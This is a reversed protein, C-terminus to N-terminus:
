ALQTMRVTDQTNGLVGVFTAITTIVGNTLGLYVPTALYLGGDYITNLSVVTGSGTVLSANCPRPTFGTLSIQPNTFAPVNTNWGGISTLQATAGYGVGAGNLTASTLTQLFVPVATATAGAGSITLSMTSAVPAGNNTLLVATISGAGTLSVTAAAATIATGAILNPDAPNPVININPAVQYGAGQNVVVISTVSGSAITAYATAQVGPAPPADIFVLPAIGYNKGGFAVGAVSTISTATSIAGGVVAQWTSNGTSASVTTTSQVWANSGGNTVVAGVVCGTLNAIRVNFGDSWINHQTVNDEGDRLGTWQTTVPDLYQLSCYKGLSIFWRGAPIPIAEGAALSIDNTSSTFEGNYLNPPYLNQPVQLGVGPGSLPQPM